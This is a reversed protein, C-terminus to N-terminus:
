GSSRLVTAQCRMHNDDTEEVPGESAWTMRNIMEGDKSFSTIRCRKDAPVEVIAVHDFEIGRAIISCFEGMYPKGVLHECEDYDAGCISCEQKSVIAGVSQFIQTPFVLQEITELRRNYHELHEFFPHARAAYIAADEANILCDWAKEPQEQKLFLWMCLENHLSLAVCECGLLLNALNEDEKEIALKKEAKVIEHQRKLKECAEAQLSSDRAISLFNECEEIIANFEQVITPLENSM